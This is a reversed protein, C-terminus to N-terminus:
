DKRFNGAVVPPLSKSRKAASGCVKAVAEEIRQPMLSQGERTVKATDTHLVDRYVWQFVPDDPRAHAHRHALIKSIAISARITPRHNNVGVNRLERVIDVVVEADARSVGAKAMAVQVETERDFHGVEITILRDILADQTKHVGAYEEPNSTFIARFDPHVEIYGEGSRRLSPLNLIKEELVSLLANNAEPRSRNFEDYVLTYGNQCAMTLRNDVWVTNMNEETKLVSHIYNDVLKSKRYGADKGILDSSSFEDDGHILTVPRGRQAAVHFALTTKGTGAPGALHIAYGVDLYTLARETLDQIHPTAVFEESAEPLVHDDAPQVRVMVPIRETAEINATTLIIEQQSPHGTLLQFQPCAPPRGGVSLRGPRDL